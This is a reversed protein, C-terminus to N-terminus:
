QTLTCITKGDHGYFKVTSYTACCSDECEDVIGLKEQLEFVAVQYEKLASLAAEKNPHIKM